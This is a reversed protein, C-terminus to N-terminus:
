PTQPTLVTRVNGEIRGLGTTLNVSMQDGTVSTQGQKLSIGGSLLVNGTNIDYSATAASAQAEGSILEVGGSAELSAIKGPQNESAPAYVVRITEATLKIAGQTVTVGGSFTASNDSQDVSLSAASVEVPLSPDQKLGGFPVEMGQGFAPSAVLLALLAFRIV